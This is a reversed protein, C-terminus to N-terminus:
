EPDGKCRWAETCDPCLARGNSDVSWGPPVVLRMFSGSGTVWLETRIRVSHVGVSGPCGADCTFVIDTELGM